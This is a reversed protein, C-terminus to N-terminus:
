AYQYQKIEKTFSTIQNKLLDNYTMTCTECTINIQTISVTQLGNERKMFIDNGPDDGHTSSHFKLIGEDDIKESRKLWTDFWQKKLDRVEKDYLTASTWFYVQSTNLENIHKETGDWRFEILRPIDNMEIIILTFPEVEELVCQEFFDQIREYEFSELLLKGRSRSYFSKREHNEFAGNLLCCIRSNDGAAIWTGGANLDKPFFVRTDGILESVPASTPRAKKEDRNSTLIFEHQSKPIFSVSCM